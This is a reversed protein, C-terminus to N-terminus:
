GAELYAHLTPATTANLGPVRQAFLVYTARIGDAGRSGMETDDGQSAYGAASPSRPNPLFPTASAYVLSPLAVQLLRARWRPCCCLPSSAGWVEALTWLSAPANQGDGERQVVGCCVRVAPIAQLPTATRTPLSPPRAQMSQGPNWSWASWSGRRSGRAAKEPLILPTTPSQIYVADECRGLSRVAQCKTLGHMDCCSFM